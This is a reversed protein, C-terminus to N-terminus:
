ESGVEYGRQPFQQSGQASAAGAHLQPPQARPGGTALTRDSVSEVQQCHVNTHPKRELEGYVSIIEEHAKNLRDESDQASRDAEVLLMKETAIKYRTM